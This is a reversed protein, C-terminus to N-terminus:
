VQDEEPKLENIALDIAQRKIAAGEPSNGSFEEAQTFRVAEYQKDGMFGEEVYVAYHRGMSGWGELEIVVKRYASLLFDLRMTDTISDQAAAGKLFKQADATLESPIGIVGKGDLVIAKWRGWLSVQYLEWAASTTRVMFGKEQLYTVFDPVQASTILGKLYASM